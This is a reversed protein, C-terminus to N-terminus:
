PGPATFVFPIVFRVEVPKGKVKPPEFRWRQAATAAAWGFEPESAEVIRPLVARGKKDVVVEIKASGAVGRERLASPYEPEPAYYPERESELERIDAPRFKNKKIREALAATAEDLVSDRRGTQFVLLQRMIAQSPAGDKLVPDFRWAELAAALALGYEPSTSRLVQSQIVKGDENILFRVEAAGAVGNVADDYPHVAFATAKAQPLEASGEPGATIFANTASGNHLDFVIGQAVWMAVPRGKVRAPSYKWQVLAELAAGELAPHAAEVLKPARVKGDKDLVFAVVVKGRTNNWALSAPYTPPVAKLLKPPEDVQFREIVRSASVIGKDFTMVVVGGYRHPVGAIVSPEFRWQRVAEVSSDELARDTSDAVFVHDVDGKETVNVLLDVRGTGGNKDLSAPWDPLPADVPMPPTVEGEHARTAVVLAIGLLAAFVRAIKM